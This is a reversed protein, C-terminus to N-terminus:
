CAVKKLANHRKRLFMPHVSICVGVPSYFVRMLTQRVRHLMKRTLKVLVVALILVALGIVALLAAKDNHEFFRLYAYGCGALAFMGVHAKFRVWTIPTLLFHVIDLIFVAIYSLVKVVKGLGYPLYVTYM